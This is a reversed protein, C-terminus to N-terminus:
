RLLRDWASRSCGHLLLPGARTQFGFKMPVIHFNRLFRYVCNLACFAWFHSDWGSCLLCLWRSFIFLFGCFFMFPALCSRAISASARIVRILFVCHGCCFSLQIEQLKFHQSSGPCVFFPQGCLLGFTRCWIVFFIKPLSDAASISVAEM